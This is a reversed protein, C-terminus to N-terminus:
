EPTPANQAARAADLKKAKKLLQKGTKSTALAQLEPFQTTNQLIQATVSPNTALAKEALNKAQAIQECMQACRAARLYSLVSHQSLAFAREYAELCPTCQGKQLEGLGIRVAKSYNPSVAANQALSCFSSLLFSFLITVKTM